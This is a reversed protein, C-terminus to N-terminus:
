NRIAEALKDTAQSYICFQNRGNNKARYLAKDARVLLEKIMAADTPYTAAGLSVTLKGLPQIEEKFFPYDEVRQRLRECLARAGDQNEEPMIVCFEEGGYRAGVDTDRICSKLISAIQKLVQDGAPHGLTDNYNKFNDVDLIILSIPRNTRQSRFVEDRLRIRFYRYNFLTTLEDTISSEKVKEYLRANAIAVAVINTILTVMEIDTQNYPEGNIKMGLVLLGILKHSHILPTIVEADLMRFKEIEKLSTLEDAIIVPQNKQFVEKVITDTIHFKLNSLEDEDVGKAKVMTLEASNNAEHLYLFTNKIRLQGILTNLYSNILNDVELISTLDISIQFLNHFDYIRRKLERNVLTLQDSTSDIEQRYKKTRITVGSETMEDTLLLIRASLLRSVVIASVLLVLAIIIIKAYLPINIESSTLFIGLLLSEVILFLILYITRYDIFKADEM